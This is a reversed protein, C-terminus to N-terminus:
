PSFRRGNNIFSINKYRWLTTLQTSRFLISGMGMSSMVFRQYHEFSPARRGIGGHGRSEQTKAPGRVVNWVSTSVLRGKWFLFTKSIQLSIFSAWGFSNVVRERHYFPLGIEYNLFSLEQCKKFREFNHFICIGADNYRIFKWNPLNKCSSVRHTISEHCEQSM